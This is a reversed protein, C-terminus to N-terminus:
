DLVWIPQSKLHSVQLHQQQEVGDKSQFSAGESGTGEMSKRMKSMARKLKAVSNVSKLSNQILATSPAKGLQAISNSTKLSMRMAMMQIEKQQEQNDSSNNSETEYESSRTISEPIFPRIEKMLNNMELFIRFLPIFEYMISSLQIVSDFRLSKMTFLQRTLERMPKRILYYVVVSSVVGFVIVSVICTCWVVLSAIGMTINVEQSILVMLVAWIVACTLLLSVILFSLIVSKISCLGDLCCGRGSRFLNFELENDELKYSSTNNNNIAKRVSASHKQVNTSSEKELSGQQIILSDNIPLVKM